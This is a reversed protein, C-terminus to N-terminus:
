EEVEFRDVLWRVLRVSADVATTPERLEERTLKLWEISHSHETWDGSGERM